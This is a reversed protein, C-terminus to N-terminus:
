IFVWVIYGSRLLNFLVTKMNIQMSHYKSAKLAPWESREFRVDEFEVGAQSLILRALEARGKLNFYHIKYVPM